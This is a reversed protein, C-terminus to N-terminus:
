VFRNEFKEAEIEMADNFESIEVSKLAEIYNVMEKALEQRFIRAAAQNIVFINTGENHTTITLCKDDIQMEEMEAEDGEAKPEVKEDDDDDEKSAVKKPIRVRVVAVIESYPEQAESSGEAPEKNEEEGDAGSPEAAKTFAPVGTQENVQLNIKPLFLTQLKKASIETQPKFTYM